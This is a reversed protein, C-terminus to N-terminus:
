CTSCRGVYLCVHSHGGFCSLHLAVGTPVRALLVRAPLVLAALAVIVPVMMMVVM